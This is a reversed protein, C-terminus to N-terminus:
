EGSATPADAEFMVELFIDHLDFLHHKKKLAAGSGGRPPGQSM